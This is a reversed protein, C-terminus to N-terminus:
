KGDDGNPSLENFSEDVWDLDEKVDDFEGYPASHNPNHSVRRIHDDTDPEIPIFKITPRGVTIPSGPPLIGNINSRLPSDSFYKQINKIDYTKMEPKQLETHVFEKLPAHFDVPESSASECVACKRFSGIIVETERGCRNCIKNDNTNIRPDVVKSQVANNSPLYSWMHHNAMMSSLKDDMVDEPDENDVIRVHDTFKDVAVVKFTGAQSPIDILDGVNPTRRQRDVTYFHQHADAFNTYYEAGNKSRLWIRQISHDVTTVTYENGDKHILIDGKAINTTHM